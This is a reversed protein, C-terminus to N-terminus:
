TGISALRYLCPRGCQRFRYFSQSGRDAECRDCWTSEIPEGGLYFPIPGACLHDGKRSEFEQDLDSEVPLTQTKYDSFLIPAGELSALSVGSLADMFLDGRTIVVTDTGWSFMWKSLNAAVEYRNAGNIRMVGPATLYYDEYVASGLANYAELHLFNYGPSLYVIQSFHKGLV